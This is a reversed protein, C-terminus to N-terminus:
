VLPMCHDKLAITLVLFTKVYIENFIYSITFFFNIAKNNEWLINIFIIELSILTRLADMLM